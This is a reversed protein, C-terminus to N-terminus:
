DDSDEEWYQRIITKKGISNGFLDNTQKALIVGSANRNKVNAKFNQVFAAFRETAYKKTKYETIKTAYTDLDVVDDMRKALYVIYIESDDSLLKADDFINGIIKLNKVQHLYCSKARGALTLMFSKGNYWVYGVSNAGSTDEYTVIHGSYINNYNLDVYESQMMITKPNVEYCPAEIQLHKEKPKLNVGLNYPIIVAVSAGSWLTGTVWEDTDVRKAKYLPCKRTASNMETNSM